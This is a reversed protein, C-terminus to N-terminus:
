QAPEIVAECGVGDLCGAADPGDLEVEAPWILGKEAARRHRHRFQNSNRQGSIATENLQDSDPDIDDRRDCWDSDPYGDTHGDHWEERERAALQSARWTM